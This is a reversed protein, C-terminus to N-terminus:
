TNGELNEVADVLDQSEAEQLHYKASSYNGESLFNSAARLNARKFPTINTDKILSEIQELIKEPTVKENHKPYTM